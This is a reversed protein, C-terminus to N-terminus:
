ETEASGEFIIGKTETYEEFLKKLTERYKEAYKYNAGIGTRLEM